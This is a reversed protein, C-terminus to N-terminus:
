TQRRGAARRCHAATAEDAPLYTEVAVEDLAIDFATGFTTVTTLFCLEVGQHEIRIPLAIDAPDPTAPWEEGGYSRLEDYLAHLERDGSNAAQRELRPLLFSRVQDLNRVRPAFGKPHFGLRMLNVPERRLQADVDEILLGFSGNALLINWRRDVAVAPYPEHARLIRELTERVRVFDPDDVARERYVPAHGAAVLLRNRQRLPVGLCDALRVVMATSPNTRGTEVFSIHRSSVDALNALELQSLKRRLRWGRLLQGVSEPV